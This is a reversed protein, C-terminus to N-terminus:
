QDLEDLQLGVPDAGAWKVHDIVKAVEGYSM